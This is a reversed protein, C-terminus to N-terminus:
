CRMLSVPANLQIVHCNYGPMSPALSDYELLHSLTRVLHVQTYTGLNILKLWYSLM